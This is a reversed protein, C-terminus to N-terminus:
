SITAVFAGWIGPDALREAILARMADSLARDISAQRRLVSSYTVSMVRAAVDDPVQWLSSVVSRAGRAVIVYQLGVLGEGAVSKGLATECASLIVAEANLRTQMFDAALVRGDVPRAQRDFTSLILASLQPVQSDAVAHSAVHIFRYRELGARLFRERTAAFGELLDVASAPLLAAITAAERATGPLRPLTASDVGSRLVPLSSLAANREAATPQASVSAFRSDSREYVPDAVLLLERTPASRRSQGHDGLLMRASPTVAIDYTEVLFRPGTKDHSRLAAFPVYHLAGDPAFVLRRKTVLQGALPAIILEHLREGLRVRETAPVSAFSSLAAHFDKAARTIVGSTTLRTLTVGQGTVVWAFAEDAGLWYEIIATDAPVARLDIAATGADGVRGAGNAASSEAIDADIQNVQHRLNTIATRLARVRADESGARDLRVELQYRRAALERYLSQRQSLLQAPVGSATAELNQYDALARARSQEATLLAKLANAHRRDDRSAAAPALYREALLSIKLDFAPRLPQLLSARLEPNASQLRVEEALGLARDLAALASDSAGRRRELRAVGVWAGFEDASADFASFTRIARQLDANAGNLDGGETRHKSRELLARAYMFENDSADAGLVVDLQELAEHPQGLAGYDRAIQVLVGARTSANSALSLAEQHMRLAEAAQGQERLVNAIARLSATRGRADLVASRLTLAQNYFDLALDRYGIAEYVSGIGHLCRAEGRQNQIRRWLQLGESYERLSVDFNGSAWNALASNQLGTAYLRPEDRANILGLALAYRAIAEALRGLEYEAVAINTQVQAQLPKEGIRAYLPLAGQYAQVAEENLGEYYYALGINNVAQAQDFWEGRRAHLAALAALTERARALSKSTLAPTGATGAGSRLSVAVEMIATAQLARARSQGYEDGVLAYTQAAKEAWVNAQPWDQVDEYLVAAISHQVHALLASPMGADLKDAVARYRGAASEYTKLRRTGADGAGLSVVQGTAYEADAGALMSNVDLCPSSLATADVIRLGVTGSVGTNRKGVIEVAYSSGQAAAFTVHQIGSRQIPSDASALNRGSTDSVILTVDVGQERALVLITADTPVLLTRKIRVDSDMAFTEDFM